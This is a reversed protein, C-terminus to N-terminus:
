GSDGQDIPTEGRRRALRDLSAAWLFDITMPRGRPTRVSRAVVLALRAGPRRGHGRDVRGRRASRPASCRRRRSAQTLRPARAPTRDRGGRAFPAVDLAEVGLARRQGDAHDIVHVAARVRDGHRLALVAIVLRRALDIEDDLARHLPATAAGDLAQPGRALAAAHAAADRFVDDLLEPPVVDRGGAADLADLATLVVARDADRARARDVAIGHETAATAAARVLPADGPRARAPSRPASSRFPRTASGGSRRRDRQGGHAPEELAAVVRGVVEPEAADDPGVADLAASRVTPDADDLLAVLVRRDSPSTALGSRSQLPGGTPRTAPVPSTTSSRPSSAAARADGSAALQVLARM